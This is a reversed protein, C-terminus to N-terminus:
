YAKFVPETCESYVISCTGGGNKKCFDLAYGAAADKSGGASVSVRGGSGRQPTALAVCQNKYAFGKSCDTAGYKACNERAEKLAESKSLKGIGAGADGTAASTSIAGWTLLWKGTAVPGQADAGAGASPIPACGPARSDGIPYHGPPCGGEAFVDMNLAFFTSIGGFVILLYRGIM